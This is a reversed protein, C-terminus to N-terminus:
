DGFPWVQFTLRDTRKGVIVDEVVRAQNFLIYVNDSAINVRSLILLYGLKGDWHHYHFIERGAGLVIENPAGLRETVEAITMGKKIEAVSVNSVDNGVNGRVFACGNLLSLSLALAIMTRARTM